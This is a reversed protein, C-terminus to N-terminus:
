RSPLRSGRPPIGGGPNACGFDLRTMYGDSSKSVGSLRVFLNDSLAINASGRVDIRNFRGYTGEIFGSATDDPKRTFLKVSGGVSNKGALTGQPGRPIEVRELDTLDFVAGFTTGYYVDDIYMGVGPEYAFNSNSQGVGRIYASISNGFFQGAPSLSVNPAFRGLDSVSRQERAELTDASIATISIPTDQLRQERFQATVVIDDSVPADKQEAKAPQDQAQAPLAAAIGGFALAVGALLRAKSLYNM